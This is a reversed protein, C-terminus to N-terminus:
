ATSCAVESRAEDTFIGPKRGPLTGIGIRFCLSPFSRIKASATSLWMEPQNQFAAARARM